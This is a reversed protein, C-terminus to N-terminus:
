GRFSGDSPHARGVNIVCQHRVLHLGADTGLQLNELREVRKLRLWETICMCPSISDGVAWCAGDGGPVQYRRAQWGSSSNVELYGDRPRSDPDVGRAAAAHTM